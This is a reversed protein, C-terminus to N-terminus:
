PLPVYSGDDTYEVFMVDPEWWAFGFHPIDENWSVTRFPTSGGMDVTITQRSGGVVADLEITWSCDCSQASAEVHLVVVEGPAVTIVQDTFFPELEAPDPYFDDETMALATPTPDDLDFYWGIVGGAGASESTLYASPNPERRDLVSASAGTVTVTSSANGELVIELATYTFLAGRELAWDLVEASYTDADQPWQSPDDAPFPDPLAVTWGDGYFDMDTAASVLLLPGSTTMTTAPVTTPPSTTPSPGTPVVSGESTTASAAVTNGTTQDGSSTSGDLNFAWLLAATLVGAVTSSIIPHRSIANLRAARGEQRNHVQEPADTGRDPAENQQNEGEAM